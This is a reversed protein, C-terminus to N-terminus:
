VGLISEFDSIIDKIMTVMQEGPVDLVFLSIPTVITSPVTSAHLPNFRFVGGFKISEIPATFTTPGTVFNGYKETSVIRNKASGSMTVEGAKVQFGTDSNPDYKLNRYPIENIKVPNQPKIGYEETGIPKNNVAVKVYAVGNEDVVSDIVKAYVTNKDSNSKNQKM